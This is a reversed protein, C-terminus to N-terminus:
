TCSPKFGICDLGAETIKFIWNFPDYNILGHAQLYPLYDDSFIWLRNFYEPADHPLPYETAFKGTFLGIPLLDLSGEVHLGAELLISRQKPNLILRIVGEYVQSHHQM